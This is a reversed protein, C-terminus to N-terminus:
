LRDTFEVGTRGSRKRGSRGGGRDPGRSEGVGGRFDAADITVCYSIQPDSLRSALRGGIEDLSNNTTIVTPLHYAYRHNFLQYLKEQAWQTSTQTGMDDLILLPAQRVSEFM